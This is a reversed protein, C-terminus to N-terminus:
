VTAPLKGGVADNGGSIMRIMKMGECGSLVDRFKETDDEKMALTMTTNANFLVHTGDANQVM